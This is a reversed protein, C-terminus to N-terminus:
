PCRTRTKGLAQGYRAHLAQRPSCPKYHATQSASSVQTKCAQGTSAYQTSSRPRPSRPWPSPATRPKPSDATAGARSQPLHVRPPPLCPPTSIRKTRYATSSHAKRGALQLASRHSWPNGTNRSPLSAVFSTKPPGSPPYPVPTPSPTKGGSPKQPIRSRGPSM